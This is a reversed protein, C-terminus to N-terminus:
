FRKKRSRKPAAKGKTSRKTKRENAAFAKMVSAVAAAAAAVAAASAAKTAVSQVRRLSSRATEVVTNSTKKAM